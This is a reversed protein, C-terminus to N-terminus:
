IKGTYIIGKCHPDTTFITGPQTETKISDNEDYETYLVWMNDIESLGEKNFLLKIKTVGEYKNDFTISDTQEM